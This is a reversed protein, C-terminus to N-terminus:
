KQFPQLAGRYINGHYRSDRYNQHRASHKREDDLWPHGFRLDLLVPRAWLGGSLAARALLDIGRKLL